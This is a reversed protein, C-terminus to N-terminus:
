TAPITRGTDICGLWASQLQTPEPLTLLNSFENPIGSPTSAMLTWQQNITGNPTNYYARFEPPCGSNGVSTIQRQVLYLSPCCLESCHVRSHPSWGVWLGTYTLRPRIQLFSGAMPRSWWATVPLRLGFQRLGAASERFGHYWWPKWRRRLRRAVRQSHPAEPRRWFLPGTPTNTVWAHATHKLKQSQLKVNMSNNPHHVTAGVTNISSWQQNVRTFCASMTLPDGSTHRPEGWM